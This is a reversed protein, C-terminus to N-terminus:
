NATTDTTAAANAGAVSAATTDTVAASASGGQKERIYKIIWWRQEPHVQSAYSGMLNKGYTIVHYMQGNSLAKSYADLLNRPAAPYPGEGNKWLPGNGDLKEGHCVGCQIMYIREAEKRQPATMTVTDMPSRYSAAQAYGSDGEPIPFSFVDGRAMTGPVPTATYTVGRSKLDHDEPLNNYNYAEYARSYNMDPAYVDGPNDGGASSCATLVVGSVIGSIILLKKMM